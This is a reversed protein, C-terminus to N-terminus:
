SAALRHLRRLLNKAIIRHFPSILWLYARGLLNHCHVVTTTVVEDGAAFGGAAPRILISLRFDLHRDDEGLVMENGSTQYIRMFSIHDHRGAATRLLDSSTKIGFGRVMLDRLRLLQKIWGPNRTMLRTALLRVDRSDDPLMTAYADLLNAGPYLDSVLSELPAPVTRVDTKAHAL